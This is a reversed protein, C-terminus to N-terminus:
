LHLLVRLGEDLRPDHGPVVGPQGQRVPLQVVPQRVEGDDHLVGQGGGAQGQPGSSEHPHPGLLQGGVAATQLGGDRVHAVVPVGAAGNQHEAAALGPGFVEVANQLVLADGGGHVQLPLGHRDGSLDADGDAGQGGAALERLQLQRHQRLALQQRHRFLLLLQPLLGVALLELGVRVQSGPIQHDVDVMADAPKRADLLHRHVAHLLVIDLDVVGAAVAQVDGDGLQIQHAFVDATALVGLLVGPQVTQAARLPGPLLRLGLGGHLIQGLPQDLQVRLPGALRAVGERRVGGPLLLKLVGEFILLGAVLEPGDLLDLLVHLPRAGHVPQQAAVHAVALRLHGEPSDHLANQVALLRGNQHGGRHQGLLVVGGGHAPEPGKRHVNLHQGPKGCGLLLLANQLFQRLAAHVQDDAGVLQDLLADPEVVQAQQDDVLLLAEADGVLLPQPLHGLLHVSQGQGSGGDGPRQVHGEAAQPIHGGDLLGGLVALRDLGVHQLM